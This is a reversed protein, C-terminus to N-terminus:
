SFRSHDDRDGLCIYKYDTRHIHAYFAGGMLITGIIVSLHSCICNAVYVLICNQPRCCRNISPAVDTKVETKLLLVHPAM